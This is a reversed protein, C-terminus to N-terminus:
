NPNPDAVRGWSAPNALLRADAMARHIRERAKYVGGTLGHFGPRRFDTVALTPRPHYRHNPSLRLLTATGSPAAPVGGKQLPRSNSTISTKSTASSYRTQFDTRKSGELKKVVYQKYIVIKSM